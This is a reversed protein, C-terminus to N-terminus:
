GQLLCGLSLWFWALFLLAFGAVAGGIEYPGGEIQGMLCAETFFRSLMLGAVIWGPDARHPGARDDWDRGFSPAGARLQVLPFDAPKALRSMPGDSRLSPLPGQASALVRRRTQEDM